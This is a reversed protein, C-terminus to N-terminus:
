DTYIAKASVQLPKSSVLEEELSSQSMPMKVLRTGHSLFKKPDSKLAPHNIKCLSNKRLSWSGCLLDLFATVIWCYEFRNGRVAAKVVIDRREKVVM